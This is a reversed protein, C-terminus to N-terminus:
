GADPLRIAAGDELLHHGLTVVQGSLAPQLIEAHRDDVIGVTVPVFRAIGGATLDAVFVGPQGRRQVLAALPVVTANDHRSLTITARVFMGPKLLEEDNPVEIEVRAQRSTEKLLPAIRSVRGTFRRHAHADTTLTAELGPRLAAYDREIVHVRATLTQLDLISAIPTNAAVMAGPDLFREGVVLRRDRYHGPIRIETYALQVKAAKLAAESQAVRAKAVDFRAQQSRFDAEATDLESQSAIQKRRLVRTREYERRANELTTRREEVTARAVDREAEARAVQQRHEADDLVAILQGTAVPDGIRVTIEEIRGAIKPALTFESAALLSGTYRGVRAISTEVVPVTEVAVPPKPRLAGDAPSVTALRRYTQLGLLGLALFVALFIWIKKM